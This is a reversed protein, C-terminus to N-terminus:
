ALIRQKLYRPKGAPVGSPVCPLSGPATSKSPLPVSCFASPSSRAIVTGALSGHEIRVANGAALYPWPEAPLGSAIIARIAAMESEEIPLPTRGIGVLQIVGPTTVVPAHHEHIDFQCFVYGPFLPLDIEAMRDSWRRRAHYLPLFERYGKNRLVTSTIKEYRQRVQLAYWRTATETLEM